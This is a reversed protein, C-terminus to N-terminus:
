HKHYPCDAATHGPHTCPEVRVRTRYWCMNKREAVNAMRESSVMMNDGLTLSGYDDSGEGPGIARCGTEDLGAQAVVTGGTITVNAGKGDQGGGIGAGYEWGGKAYVYGGTITVTGGNGGEGGGIGAADDGGYAEVWGGNITLDAGDIGDGGGIGAAHTGGYAKVTGGDIIITGAGHAGARQGCGIGASESNTTANIYGGYIHLNGGKCEFGGGIGAGGGPEPDGQNNGGIAHISGGYININGYNAGMTGGGIGASGVGGEARITGGYITIEGIQTNYLGGIASPGRAKLNINGGHIVINGGKTVGDMSGGLSASYDSDGDRSHLRGLVSESGQDHIYVTHGETVVIEEGLIFEANDSLIIHVHPGLVVLANINVTGNVVYFEHFRSNETGISLTSSPASTLVKFQTENTPTADASIQETLFKTTATVEKRNPDWARAVYYSTGEPVTKEQYAEKNPSSVISMVGEMDPKFIRDPDVSNYASFNKTFEHPTTELTIGVTSGALSGTVNIYKRYKLYVNDTVGGSATNDTVTIAGQMSLIKHDPDGIDNGGYIGGGFDGARNDTISGGNITLAPNKGGEIIGNWIGGGNQYAQNGTVTCSELTLKGYNCIGGGGHWAAVNDSITVGTLTATAGFHNFMGGGGAPDGEHEKIDNCTNGTIAGGTMILTAGSRNCIGGGINDGKNGSITVNTLVATGDNLLGGAWGGWGGTMTGNSLLLKSGGAVYFCQGDHGYAYLKRDLKYGCLDINVTRNDTIQVNHGVEIDNAFQILANDIQVAASLEAENHVQLSVAERMKATVTCYSAVDLTFSNDYQTYLKDGISAMLSVPRGPIAPIAVFLESTPAAPTVSIPEGAVSVNLSSASLPQTPNEADVLQFAVVAQQSEFTAPSTIITSEKTGSVTVIATSYDCHAAIYGLTGDQNKYDASLFELRLEEGPKIYRPVTGSLTTSEGETKASLTCFFTGGRFVRVTEGVAWTSKLKQGDFSLAKTYPNDGKVASVSLTYIKSRGFQHQPEEEVVEKVCSILLTCLALLCFIRKM